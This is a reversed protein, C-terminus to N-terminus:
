RQRSREGHDEAGAGSSGVAVLPLEGQGPELHGSRGGHLDLDADDVLAVAVQGLIRGHRRRQGSGLSSRDTWERMSRM